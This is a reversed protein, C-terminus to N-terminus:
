NEKRIGQEVNLSKQSWLLVLTPHYITISPYSLIIDKNLILQSDVHVGDAINIGEKGSLMDM